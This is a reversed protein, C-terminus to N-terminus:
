SRLDGVIQKTRHKVIMGDLVPGGLTKYVGLLWVKHCNLINVHAALSVLGYPTCFAAHKLV